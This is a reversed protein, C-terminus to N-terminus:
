GACNQYTELGATGADLNSVAAAQLEAARTVDNTVAAEGLLTLGGALEKEVEAWHPRPWPWPWPPCLDGDWDAVSGFASYGTLRSAHSFSAIAAAHLRKGVAPDQAHRAAIVGALGNGVATTVAAATRQDLERDVIFIPGPCGPCGDVYEPHIVTQSVAQAPAAALVTGATVSAAVALAAGLRLGWRLRGRRVGPVQRQSMM